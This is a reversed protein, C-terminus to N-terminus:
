PKKVKLVIYDFAPDQGPFGEDIVYAGRGDTDAVLPAAQQGIQQFRTITEDWDIAHVRVIGEEYRAWPIRGSPCSTAYWENHEWLTRPQGTRRPIWSGQGAIWRVLAVSANAQAETLPEGAVGEHEIGVFRGNAVPGGGHYTVADLAYHQWVTGDTLVSFAWSEEVAASQVRERLAVRYGEASHCIVGLVRNTTSGPYGHKSPEGPVQEAAPYWREM